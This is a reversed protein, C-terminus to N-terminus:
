QLNRYGKYHRWRSGINQKSGKLGFLLVQHEVRLLQQILKEAALYGAGSTRDPVPGALKPLHRLVIRQCCARNGSDQEAGLSAPAETTGGDLEAAAVLSWCSRGGGEPM